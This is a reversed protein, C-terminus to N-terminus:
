RSGQHYPATQTYYARGLNGTEHLYTILGLATGYGQWFTIADPLPTPELSSLIRVSTALSGTNCVTLVNLGDGSGGKRKVEDALWDGGWKGMAKNRGVDEAAVQKGDEVLDEAIARADKGESVSSRLTRSLRRTAAGLNVATPRATFLFDLIPTVHAALSEPSSLFEPPPDPARLARALHQSVSLAALSAIAPAGRIQGRWLFFSLSTRSVSLESQASRPPHLTSIPAGEDDKDCRPSPRHQRHVAM